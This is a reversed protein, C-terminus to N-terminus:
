QIQFDKMVNDWIVIHSELGRNRGHSWFLYSQNQSFDAKELM